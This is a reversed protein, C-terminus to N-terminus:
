FPVDSNQVLEVKCVWEGSVVFRIKYTKCNSKSFSGEFIIFYEGDPLQTSLIITFYLLDDFHLTDRAIIEDKCFITFEFDPEPLTSMGVINFGQHNNIEGIRIESEINICKSIPLQDLLTMFNLFFNPNKFEENVAIEGIEDFVGWCSGTWFATINGYLSYEVGSFGSKEISGKNYPIQHVPKFENTNLDLYGWWYDRECIICSSPQQGISNTSFEVDAMEVTSLNNKNIAFLKGDKKALLLKDKLYISDYDCNLCHGDLNLLGFKSELGYQQKVETLIIDNWELVSVSNYKPRIFRIGNKEDFEEEVFYLIGWLNGRRVKLVHCDLLAVEDFMECLSIDFDTSDFDASDDDTLNGRHCSPPILAYRITNGDKIVGFNFYYPTCSIYKRIVISEFRYFNAKVYQLQYFYGDELFLCRLFNWGKGDFNWVYGEDAGPMPLRLDHVDIDMVRGDGDLIHCDYDDTAVAYKQNDAIYITNWAKESIEKDCSEITYKTLKQM